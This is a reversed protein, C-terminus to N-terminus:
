EKAHMTDLRKTWGPVLTASFGSTAGVFNTRMFRETYGTPLVRTFIDGFAWQAPDAGAAFLFEQPSAQTPFRPMGVPETRDAQAKRAAFGPYPPVVKSPMGWEILTSNIAVAPNRALPVIGNWAVRLVGLVSEDQWAFVVQTEDFGDPMRRPTYFRWETGVPLQEAVWNIKDLLEDTLPTKNDGYNGNDLDAADVAGPIAHSFEPWTIM